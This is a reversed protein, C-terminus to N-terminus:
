RWRKRLVIATAATIVVGMSSAMLLGLEAGTTALKQGPKVTKAVGPKTVAPTTTSPKIFSPETAPPKTGPETTPPKSPEPPPPTVPAKRKYSNVFSLAKVEDKANITFTQAPPPTLDYGAIQAEDTHEKLTCTTGVPVQVKSAVLSGNGPVIVEGSESGCTYQFTFYKDTVDAGTGTKRLTFTGTDPQVDIPTYTNTFTAVPTTDGTDITVTQPDSSVLTYGDMGATATDESIYCETGIPLMMPATTAEGNGLASLTKPWTPETQAVGNLGCSYTFNYPKDKVGPAGTANKVIKFTSGILSYDVTFGAQAPSDPDDITVTVPDPPTYNYLHLTASSPDQTITCRTGVPFFKDSEVVTLDGKTVLTGTVGECDYTYSYEKNYWDPGGDYEYDLRPHTYVAFTGHPTDKTYYNNFILKTYLGPIIRVQQVPPKALTYGDIATGSDRQTITCMTDKPFGWGAPVPIGNSKAKMMGKFAGCQYDYTYTKDGVGPAGWAHAVVSFTGRPTDGTPKYDTFFFTKALPDRSIKITQAPRISATYGPIQSAAWDQEVTCRTGIPFVVDTTTYRAVTKVTGKSGDSCSYHFVFDKYEAEPAGKNDQEITFPATDNHFVPAFDFRLPSPSATVVFGQPPPVAMSAWDASRRHLWIICNEGIRPRKKGVAPVGDGTVTVSDQGSQDCKYEVTYDEFPAVSTGSAKVSVEIQNTEISFPRVFSLPVIQGESDVKARSSFPTLDTEDARPVKLEVNCVSNIPVPTPLLTPLGDGKVTFRGEATKQNSQLFRCIYSGEFDRNTFDQTTGPTELRVAVNGFAPRYKVLMSHIVPQTPSDMPLVGDTDEITYIHGEIEESGDNKDRIYVGCMTSLPIGTYIIHVKDDSRVPATGEFQREPGRCTYVALCDRAPFGRASVRVALSGTKPKKARPQAIPASLQGPAQADASSFTTDSSQRTDITGTGPADSMALDHSASDDVDQTAQTGKMNPPTPDVPSTDATSGVGPESEQNLTNSGAPTATSTSTAESVMTTEVPSMGEAGVETDVDTSAVSGIGTTTELSEEPTVAEANLALPPTSTVRNVPQSADARPLDAPVRVTTETPTAAVGPSAALSAPICLTVALASSGAIAIMRRILSLHGDRPASLLTM